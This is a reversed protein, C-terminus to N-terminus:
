GRGTPTMPQNGLFFGHQIVLNVGGATTATSTQNVIAGGAMVAGTISVGNPLTARINSGSAGSPAVAPSVGPPIASDVVPTAVPAEVSALANGDSKENCGICSVILIAVVAARVFSDRYPYSTM